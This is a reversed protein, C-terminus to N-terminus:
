SLERASWELMVRGTDSSLAGYKVANTCLEHLAMGLSVADKDSLGVDPGRFMFQGNEGSQRYPKTVDAVLRAM